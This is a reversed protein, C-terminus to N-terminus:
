SRGTKSGIGTCGFDRGSECRYRFFHRQRVGNEYRDFLDLPAILVIPSHRNVSKIVLRAGMNVMKQWYLSPYKYFDDINFKLEALNM